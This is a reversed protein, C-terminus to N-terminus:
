NVHMESEFYENSVHKNHKVVTEFMDFMDFNYEIQEVLIFCTYITSLLHGVCTLCPCM